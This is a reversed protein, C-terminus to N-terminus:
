NGETMDIWGYRVVPGLEHLCLYEDRSTDQIHSAAPTVEAEEGGHQKASPTM